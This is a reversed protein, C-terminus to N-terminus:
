GENQDGDDDHLGQDNCCKAVCKEFAEPGNGTDSMLEESLHV